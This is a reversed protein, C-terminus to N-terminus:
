CAFVLDEFHIMDEKRPFLEFLTFDFYPRIRIYIYVYAYAYWGNIYYTENKLTYYLWVFHVKMRGHFRVLVLDRVKLDSLIEQERNDTLFCEYDELATAWVFFPEDPKLFCILHPYHKWRCSLVWVLPYIICSMFGIVALYTVAGCHVPRVVKYHIDVTGTINRPERAVVFLGDRECMCSVQVHVMDQEKWNIMQLSPASCYKPSWASGNWRRCSVISENFIINATLDEGLDIRMQLYICSGHASQCASETSNVNQRERRSGHYVHSMRPNQDVHLARTNTAAKSYTGASIDQNRERLIFIASIHQSIIGARKRMWPDSIRLMMLGVSQGEPDMDSHSLNTLMVTYTYTGGPSPIEASGHWAAKRHLMIAMNGRSYQFDMEPELMTDIYKQCVAIAAHVVTSMIQLAMEESKDVSAEAVKSSAELFSLIHGDERLTQPLV